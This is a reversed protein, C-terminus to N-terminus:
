KCWGAQHVWHSCCVSPKWVPFPLAGYGFIGRVRVYTSHCVYVYMYVDCVGCVCTCVCTCFLLLFPLTPSLEPSLAQRAARPRIVQVAFFDKLKIDVEGQPPCMTQCQRPVCHHQYAELAERGDPPCRGWVAPSVKEMAWTGVLSRM